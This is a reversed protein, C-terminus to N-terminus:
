QWYILIPMFVELSAGTFISAAASGEAKWAWVYAHQMAAYVCPLMASKNLSLNEHM